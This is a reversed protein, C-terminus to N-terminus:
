KVGWLRIDATFTGTAVSVKMGNIIGTDANSNYGATISQMNGNSREGNYRNRINTSLGNINHASIRNTVHYCGNSVPQPGCQISGVGGGYGTLGSGNGQALSRIYDTLYSAGSDDSLNLAVDATNGRVNYLELVLEVYDSYDAAHEWDAEASVAESALLVPQGDVLDPTLTTTM